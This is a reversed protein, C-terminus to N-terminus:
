DGGNDDDGKMRLKPPFTGPNNPVASEQCKGSCRLRGEKVMQVEDDSLERTEWGCKPCVAMMPIRDGQRVVERMRPIDASRGSGSGIPM